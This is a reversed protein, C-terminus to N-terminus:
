AAGPPHLNHLLNPGDQTWNEAEQTPLSCAQRVGVPGPGPPRPHLVAPESQERGPKSRARRRLGPLVQSEGGDGESARPGPLAPLPMAPM